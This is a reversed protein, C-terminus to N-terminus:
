LLSTEFGASFFERKQVCRSVRIEATFGLSRQLHQIIRNKHHASRVAHLCMRHGQPLKEPMVPNRNKHKHILHVPRARLPLIYYPLKGLLKAAANECIKVPPIGFFNGARTLDQHLLIQLRTSEALFADSQSDFLALQERHEKARRQLKLSNFFEDFCESSKSDSFLASLLESRSYIFDPSVLLAVPKGVQFYCASGQPIFHQNVAPFFDFM